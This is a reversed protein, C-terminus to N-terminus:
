KELGALRLAGEVPAGTFVKPPRLTKLHKEIMPLLVDAKNTLGGILVIKPDAQGLLAAGAEMEEAIVGATAFLIEEAAPDGAAFAQFVLPAFSAILTKGGKYLEAINGFVTETGCKKLVEKYLEGKALGFDECKMAHLLADRGIKYGSGGEDFLYNYGGIRTLTQNKRVFTANGTGAIIVVGDEGQLAAEVANQADSGCGVKAFGYPTLHQRLAAQHSKVICGAIGVFLSIRAFPIDGCVSEIGQSLLKLTTEIGVDNPNSGGLRTHAIQKGAADCLVFETKTGGGDVGLYYDPSVEARLLTDIDTHLIRALTPLLVAPAISQGSEWKSVAKASYGLKEALQTQTLAAEKRKRRLNIGFAATIISPDM